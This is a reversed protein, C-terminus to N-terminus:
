LGNVYLSQSELIAAVDSKFRECLSGGTIDCDCNCVSYTVTCSWACVNSKPAIDWRWWLRTAIALHLHARLLGYNCRLPHFITLHQIQSGVWFCKIWKFIEVLIKICENPLITQTLDQKNGSWWSDGHNRWAVKRPNRFKTDSQLSPIRHINSDNWIWRRLVVYGPGLNWGDNFRCLFSHNSDSYSFLAGPDRSKSIITPWYM